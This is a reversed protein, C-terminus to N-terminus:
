LIFPRMVGRLHARVLSIVEMNIPGAPDIQAHPKRIHDRIGVWAPSVLVCVPLNRKKICLAKMQIQISGILLPLQEGQKCLHPYIAGLVEGLYGVTRM